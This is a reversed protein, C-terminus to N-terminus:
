CSQYRRFKFYASTPQPADRPYRHGGDTNKKKANVKMGNHSFWQYASSLAAEMRSIVLRLDSKRGSTLLTSDDAYCVTTVNDGIFSSFDNSYLAYLICSLAGGQFIGSNIDRTNSLQYDGAPRAGRPPGAPRAGREGAARGTGAGGSKGRLRVQQTHGHLYSSFWDTHIGYACLKELLKSHPVVDFCKSLDLTVMISIESGDM